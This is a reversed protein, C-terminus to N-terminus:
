RGGGDGQRRVDRLIDAEQPRTRPWRKTISQKVIKTVELTESLM